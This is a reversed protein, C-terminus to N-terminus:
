NSTGKEIERNIRARDKEKLRQAEERQKDVADGSDGFCLFGM